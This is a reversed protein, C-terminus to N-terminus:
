HTTLLRMKYTYTTCKHSNFNQDSQVLNLSEIGDTIAKVLFEIFTEDNLAGIVGLLWIAGM